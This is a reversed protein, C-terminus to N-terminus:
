ITPSSSGVVLVPTVTRRNTTAPDPTHTGEVDGSVLLRAAAAGLSELRLDVSTLRRPPAQALLVEEQNDVGIVAVDDPVRVGASELADIVGLAINDNGCFIADVPTGSELLAVAAEMGWERSWIGHAAPAVFGLGHEDLAALAGAMRGQVSLSEEGATIHAIRRRGTAVLHEIALRGAGASDIQLVTDDPDDSDTFAYVVPSSFRETLSRTMQDNNTGVVLVGEVKRAQLGKVDEDRWRGARAASDFLLAARGLLSLEKVAGIVVPRAFPIQASHTFVGVAGSRGSAFSQALANPTYDLRRATEHVRRRTTESVRHDDRLAKSATAISVGAVAAVDRLTVVDSKGM